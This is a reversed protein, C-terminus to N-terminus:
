TAKLGVVVVGSLRVGPLDELRSRESSLLDGGSPVSCLCAFKNGFRPSTVLLPPLPPIYLLLAPAYFPWLKLPLDPDIVPPKLTQVKGQIM